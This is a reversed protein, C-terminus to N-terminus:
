KFQTFEGFFFIALGYVTFDRFCGVGNKRSVKKALFFLKGVVLMWSTIKSSSFLEFSWQLISAVFANM